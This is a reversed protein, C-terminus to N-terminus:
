FPMNFPSARERKMLRETSKIFYVGLVNVAIISTGNSPADIKQKSLFVIKSMKSLLVHTSTKVYLCFTKFVSLCIYNKSM